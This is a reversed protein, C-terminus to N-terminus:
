NIGNANKKIIGYVASFNLAAAFNYSNVIRSLLSSFKAKYASVELCENQQCSTTHVKVVFVVCSM